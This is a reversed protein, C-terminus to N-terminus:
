IQHHLRKTRTETIHIGTENLDRELEPTSILAFEEAQSPEIRVWAVPNGDIVRPLNGGREEHTVAIYACSGLRSIFAYRAM